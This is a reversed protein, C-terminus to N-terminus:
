THEEMAKYVKVEAGSSGVWLHPRVLRLFGVRQASFVSIQGSVGTKSDCSVTYVNGDACGAVVSQGSPARQLSLVGGVSSLYTADPKVVPLEQSIFFRARMLSDARAYHPTEHLCQLSARPFFICLFIM